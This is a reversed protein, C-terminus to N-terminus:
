SLSTLWAAIAKLGVTREPEFITMGVFDHPADAVEVYSVADKGMDRRMRDRLTRMADRSMEAEGALIFTPPFGTFIGVVDANDLILSGPSLWPKDLEERPLAGLLAPPVYAADFWTRVYDSRRNTRMSNGPPAHIGSDASPSLLLLAGAQSMASKPDAMTLYRALQYALVGGASDGSVIINRPAFGVQHILYHYGTIADILAAPFPNRVPFPPGSALRYELAFVRPIQPLHHLYGDVTTASPSFISGRQGDVVFGGGHLHYIVMEDPLARQDVSFEDGSVGYWFGGITAPVVGNLKAFHLIEGAVLDPTPEVLVFGTKNSSLVLKELPESTPLHTEIMIATAANIIEVILARTLTWKRRPRWSPLLNHMRLIWFPLRVFLIALVAVFIYISKLPQRRFKFAM